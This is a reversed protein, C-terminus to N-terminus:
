QIPLGIIEESIVAVGYKNKIAKPDNILINLAKSLGSEDIGIVLWLPNSDGLGEGTAVIVGIDNSVKQAINGSYDLLEIEKETFHLNLGTKQYSENLGEIYDINNIDNWKGLLITPNNRNELETENLEKVEINSVGVEEMSKKLEEALDLKDKSTMLVVTKEEDTYGNIFPEPYAGIVAANASKISEWPHYDWWVIDGPSLEYGGAGVDACVGNVFYFWDQRKGSELGNDMKIGNIESVFEGGWKTGLEVNEELIDMVTYGEEIKVEGYFLDEKGYDKTVVLKVQNNINDNNLVGTDESENACGSIFLLILMSVLFVKSFPKKM